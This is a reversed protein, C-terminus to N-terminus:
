SDGRAKADPNKVWRREDKNWRYDDCEGTVYFDLVRLAGGGYGANNLAGAPSDGDFVEREGTKWYFTYAGM